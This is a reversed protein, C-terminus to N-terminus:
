PLNELIADGVWGYGPALMKKLEAGEYGPEHWKSHGYNCLCTEIEQVNMPRDRHPPALLPWDRYLLASFVDAEPEGLYEAALKLGRRPFESLGSMGVASFDVPVGCTREAMDAIKFASFPGFQPLSTIFRNAAAYVPPVSKFFERVNPFTARLLGIAEEAVRTRFHRRAGGRVPQRVFTLANDWFKSPGDAAMRSAWGLHDALGEGICVMQRVAKPLEARIIASYMPEVDDIVLKREIFTFVDMRRPEPVGM